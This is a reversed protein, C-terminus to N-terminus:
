GNRRAFCRQSNAPREARLSSTTVDFGSNTSSCSLALGLGRKVTPFVRASAIALVLEALVTAGFRTEIKHRVAEDSGDGALVGQAFKVVLSVSDSMHQDDRSLIARVTQLEIGEDLAVNVAMQLCAACDEHQTAVIRATHLLTPDSAARHRALPLILLLKLLGSFSAHGLDSLYGASVRVKREVVRQIYGVIIRM